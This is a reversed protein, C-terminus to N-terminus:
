ERHMHRSAPYDPSFQQFSSRTDQFIIFIPGFLQDLRKQLNLRIAAVARAYVSRAERRGAPPSFWDPEPIQEVAPVEAKPLLDPSACTEPRPCSMLPKHVM